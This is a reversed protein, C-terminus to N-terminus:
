VAVCGDIYHALIPEICIILAGSGPIFTRSEGDVYHTCVVSRKDWMRPIHIARMTTALHRM